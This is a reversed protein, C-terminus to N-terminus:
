HMHHKLDLARHLRSAVGDALRNRDSAAVELLAEHLRRQLGARRGEGIAPEVMGPRASVAQDADGLRQMLEVDRARLASEDGAQACAFTRRQEQYLVGPTLAVGPEQTQGAGADDM